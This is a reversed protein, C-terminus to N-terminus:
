LEREPSHDHAPAREDSLYDSVSLEILQWLRCLSM